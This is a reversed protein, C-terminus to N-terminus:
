QDRGHLIHTGLALGALVLITSYFGCIVTIM